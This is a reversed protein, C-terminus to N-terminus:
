QDSVSGLENNHIKTRKKAQCGEGAFMELLM